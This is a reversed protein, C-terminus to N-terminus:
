SDINRNKLERDVYTHIYSLHLLVFSQTSSESSSQMRLVRYNNINTHVHIYTHIYTHVRQACQKERSRYTTAFDQPSEVLIYLQGHIVWCCKCPRYYVTMHSSLHYVKVLHLIHMAPKPIRMYTHTFQIDTCVHVTIYIIWSIHVLIPLM